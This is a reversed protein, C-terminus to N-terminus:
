RIRLNIARHTQSLYWYETACWSFIAHLGLLLSYLINFSWVTLFYFYPFAKTGASVPFVPLIEYFIELVLWLERAMVGEHWRPTMRNTKIAKWKLTESLSAWLQSLSFAWQSTIWLCCHFLSKSAWQHFFLWVLFGPQQNATNCDPAIYATLFIHQLRHGLTVEQCLLCPWSQRSRERASEWRM